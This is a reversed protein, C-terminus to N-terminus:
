FNKQHFRIFGLGFPQVMAEKLLNFAMEATANWLFSNKKLLAMLPTTLYGYKELSSRLYGTIGLLGKFAKLNNPMPWDFM